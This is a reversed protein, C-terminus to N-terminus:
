KGSNAGTANNHAKKYEDTSKLAAAESRGVDEIDGLNNALQEIDMEAIKTGNIELEGIDKNKVDKMTSELESAIIKMYEIDGSADFTGTLANGNEDRIVNGNEDKKDYTINAINQFNIERGEEQARKVERAVAVNVAKRASKYTFNAADIEAQTGGGSKIAEYASKLSSVGSVDNTANYVREKYKKGEEYSQVKRDQAKAKTQYHGGFFRSGYISGGAAKVDLDKEVDSRVQGMGTRINGIMGGKKAGGAKAGKIAGTILRGTRAGIAAGALAGAAGGVARKTTNLGKGIGKITDMTPKFRDKGSLGFSGSAAGMKPFLEGLMKPAKQAFLLLGMIIAIYMFTKMTASPSGVNELISGDTFAKGLIQCVLLVFYIIGVRLFLDLYTAVCQKVWKQFIGDKKPALYGIIPIPAIIQLFTLQAVRVGADVCYLLLMYAVFAGVGLAFIGNFHIKYEELTEGTNEEVVKGKEDLGMTLYPLKGHKRLYDNNLSVLQKCSLDGCEMNEINDNKWNVNEDVYYFMSLLNASFDRGFEAVEVNQKGLIVKSFVQNDFIRNQFDYAIRFITPVFAILVVVIIMKMVIKPAGKEKDSIGEPQIVFKVFEFTVYFVMIIALIMTIRQYIPEIDSSRLIEVRSINMFLEYLWSIIMYIFQCIWAALTRLGDEIM